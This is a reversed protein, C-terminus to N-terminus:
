LAIALGVLAGALGLLWFRMVIQTEPWGLHEFHHHLPARRFIRKGGTRKFYAV